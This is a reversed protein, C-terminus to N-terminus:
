PGGDHAPRPGAAPIARVGESGWLPNAILATPSKRRAPLPPTPAYQLGPAQRSDLLLVCLARWFCAWLALRGTLLSGVANPGPATVRAQQRLPLLSGATSLPQRFSAPLQQCSAGAPLRGPGQQAAAPLRSHGPLSSPAQQCGAALRSPAQQSGALAQQSKASCIWIM